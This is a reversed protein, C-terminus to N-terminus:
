FKVLIAIKSEASATVFDFQMFQLGAGWDGFRKHQNKEAFYKEVLETPPIQNHIM